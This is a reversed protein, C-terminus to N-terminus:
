TVADLSWVFAKVGEAGLGARLTKACALFAEAKEDPLAVFLVNNVGPWIDTGLHTGSSAGKGAAGAFKTYHELGCHELTEMVEMDIAENYAIMAM